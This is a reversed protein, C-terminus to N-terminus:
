KSKIHLYMDKQMVTATNAIRPAHYDEWINKIQHTPEREIMSMKM